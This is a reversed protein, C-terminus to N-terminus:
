LSFGYVVLFLECDHPEGHSWIDQLLKERLSLEPGLHTGKWLTPTLVFRADLSLVRLFSSTHDKLVLCQPSRIGHFYQYPESILSCNKSVSLM